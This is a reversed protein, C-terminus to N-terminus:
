DSAPDKLVDVLLPTIDVNAEKRKITNTLYLKKYATNIRAIGAPLVGHTVLAVVGKAGARKCELALREMTGGTEVLDDIVAVVRNKISRQMQRSSELAIDYSNTRKKAMGAIKTRRRGGEDASLFYLKEGLDTKAKKKLLSVASLLRIPYRKTWAKGAFHADIIFIRKVHYYNVLKKVLNEAVNTEGKDFVEDQMGYPFYSFFVDIPHAGNDRLIQLILELEVLGENPQPAGSHLVMVRKGTLNNAEPIKVYLEKDPFHRKGDRNFGPHIITLNNLNFRLLKTTLHAAQTTPILFM